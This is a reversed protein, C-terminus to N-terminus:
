HWQTTRRRRAGTGGIPPAASPPAPLAKCARRVAKRIRDYTGCRCINTIAAGIQADTPEQGAHAEVFPAAAMLQGSQCYGCQPVQEKLWADQVVHNDLGEITTLPMGAAASVPLICTRVANGGMHMTCAGCLGMGCGFRTGTMGLTDRIVWLLPTDPAVDVEHDQGNISLKIM